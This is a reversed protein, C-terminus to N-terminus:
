PSSTPSRDHSPPGVNGTATSCRETTVARLQEVLAYSAVDLHNTADPELEVHSPFGRRTSTLPGTRAAGLWADREAVYDAWADPDARLQAEAAAM